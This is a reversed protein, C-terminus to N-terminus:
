KKQITSIIKTLDEKVGRDNWNYAEINCMGKNTKESFLAEVSIFYEPEGFHIHKFKRLNTLIKEPLIAKFVEKYRHISEVIINKKVKDSRKISQLYIEISDIFAQNAEEIDSNVVYNNYIRAVSTKWIELDKQNEIRKLWSEITEETQGGSGEIIERISYFFPLVKHKGYVSAIMSLHLEFVRGNQIRPLEAFMNALCPTRQVSYIQHMYPNMAEILRQRPHEAVVEFFWYKKYITSFHAINDILEYALCRGQVSQYDVNDDLYSVCKNLANFGHFDDDACLVVYPTEIIKIVETLREFINLGPFHQYVLNNTLDGLYPISSGDVIIIKNVSQGWYEISKKLHEPRNYTPIIVTLKFKISWEVGEHAKVM